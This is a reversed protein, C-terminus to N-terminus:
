CQGTRTEPVTAIPTSTPAGHELITGQVYWPAPSGVPAALVYWGDGLSTMTGTFTPRELRVTLPQRVPNFTKALVYVFRDSSGFGFVRMRSLSGRGVAGTVNYHTAGITLTAQFLEDPRCFDPPPQHGFRRDDAVLAAYRTQFPTLLPSSTKLVFHVTV